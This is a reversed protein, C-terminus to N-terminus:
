SQPDKQVAKFTLTVRASGGAPAAAGLTAEVCLTQDAGATLLRPDAVLTGNFSSGTQVAQGSCTRGTAASSMPGTTVRASLAAATGTLTTDTATSDLTYTMLAHDAASANRLTFEAATTAGPSMDSVTLGAEPLADRGGVVLDFTGAQVAGPRVVVTSSWYAMTNVGLPAVLLGLALAARVRVSGLVRLSGPAPQRM